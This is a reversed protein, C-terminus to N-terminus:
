TVKITGKMYQHISCIYNYTGPKGATFTFSKGKELDGSDFSKDDATVTHVAGDENTVTVKQGSKVQLTAPGYTFSKINITTGGTGAAGDNPSAAKTGGGGGCGTLAATTAVVTFGVRLSTSRWM